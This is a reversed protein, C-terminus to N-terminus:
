VGYLHKVNYPGMSVCLFVAIFFTCYVTPSIEKIKSYCKYHFLPGPVYCTVHMQYRPLPVIFKLKRKNKLM